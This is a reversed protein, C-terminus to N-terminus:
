WVGTRRARPKGQPTILPPVAPCKSGGRFTSERGNSVHLWVGAGRSWGSEAIGVIWNPQARRPAPAQSAPPGRPVFGPRHAKACPRQLRPRASSFAGRGRRAPKFAYACNKALKFNNGAKELLEAADEYKNGFGFFSSGKLKKDAKALFDQGKAEYDAM